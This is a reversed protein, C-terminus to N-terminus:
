VIADDTLHELLARQFLFFYEKALTSELAFLQLVKM